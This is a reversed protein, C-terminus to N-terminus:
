LLELFEEDELTHNILSEVILKSSPKYGKF